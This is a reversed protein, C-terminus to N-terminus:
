SESRFYDNVFDAAGILTDSEASKTVFKTQIDIPSQRVFDAPDCYGSTWPQTEYGWYEGGAALAASILSSVYVLKMNPDSTSFYAVTKPYITIVYRSAYITFYIASHCM